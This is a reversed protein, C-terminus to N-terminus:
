LLFLLNPAMIKCNKPSGRKPTVELLTERGREGREQGREGREREREETM